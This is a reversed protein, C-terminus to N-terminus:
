FARVARVYYTGSKSVPDTQGFFMDNFHIVYANLKSEETSSWYYEDAFTFTYSEFSLNLWMLWLEEKSPLYWDSYSYQIYLENCIRAAYTSGDGYGQNAIIIATNMEGSLPGDGLAMTNTDTGANWRVGSSQDDDACVLGHEGTEDVWFVIGGQAYDGISYTTSRGSVWNSGDYTYLGPSADTQYIVLGSAPSSINNRQSRTMRPPLLGKSTSQVDLMASADASSGDTTVAMQATLSYSALIAIAVLLLISKKM